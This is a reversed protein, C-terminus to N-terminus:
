VNKNHSFKGVFRPTQWGIGGGIGYNIWELGNKDKFTRNFYKIGNSGEALYEGLTETPKGLPMQEFNDLIKFGIKELFGFLKKSMPETFIDGSTKNLIYKVIDGALPTGRYEGKVYALQLLQKYVPVNKRVIAFGSVKEKDLDYCMSFLGSEKEFSVHSRLGTERECQVIANELLNMTRNSIVDLNSSELYSIM